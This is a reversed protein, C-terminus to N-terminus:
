GGRALIKEMVSIKMYILFNRQSERIHGFQIPNGNGIIEWESGCDIKPLM